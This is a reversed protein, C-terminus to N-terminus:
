KRWILSCESTRYPTKLYVEFPDRPLYDVECGTKTDNCWAIGGWVLVLHTPSYQTSPLTHLRPCTVTVARFHASRQSMKLYIHTSPVSLHTSNSTLYISLFFFISLHGFSPQLAHPTSPSRKQFMSHSTFDRYFSFHIYILFRDIMRDWLWEM